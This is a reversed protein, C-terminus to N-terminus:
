CRASCRSGGLSRHLLLPGVLRALVRGDGALGRALGGGGAGASPVPWPDSRVARMGRRCRRVRRRDCFEQGAARGAFAVGGPEARCHREPRVQRRAADGMARHHRLRVAADPAIADGGQRPAGGGSPHHVFRGPRDAHFRDLGCPWRRYRLDDGAGHHRRPLRPQHTAGPRRSLDAMTRARVHRASSRFLCQQRLTALVALRHLRQSRRSRRDHLRRDTCLGRHGASPRIRIASLPAAREADPRTRPRRRDLDSIAHVIEAVIDEVPRGVDAYIPHEDPDPEELIAFQSDLLSAPM